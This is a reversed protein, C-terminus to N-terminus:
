RTWLVSGLMAASRSLAGVARMPWLKALRLWRLATRGNELALDLAEVDVTGNRGYRVASLARLSERFDEIVAQTRGNPVQGNGNVRYREIADSTIPTSVLLYKRRLIGKRVTLQGERAPVNTNVLAQAVSRGIALASAIRLVTLASGTRESTWGERAVESKLRGLEHLCARLITSEPAVPVLAPARDRRQSLLRVAAFALMLVAFGFLIAAAVLESTARFRRAEVDAFTERPSDRIDTENKPVLSVVRIPLAPLLYRQDRGQAPTGLAPDGVGSGGRAGLAAAANPAGGQPGPLAAAAGPLGAAGAVAQQITYTVTLAPIDVDQGFFDQGVLRLTYEYQFYRWPPAQIDEHRTGALVEFPTLQLAGPDLEDMNPVVTVRGADIVGCTLTLTLREGIQAANKDTRWWCKIPDSAIEHTHADASSSQAFVPTAFLVGCTLVIAGASRPGWHPLRLPGRMPPGASPVGGVSYPWSRNSM